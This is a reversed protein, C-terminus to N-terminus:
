AADCLQIYSVVTGIIPRAYEKIVVQREGSAAMTQNTEEDIETPILNNAEALRRVRERLRRIQDINDNAPTLNGRLSHRGQM